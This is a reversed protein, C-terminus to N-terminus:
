TAQSRQAAARLLLGYLTSVSPKAMDTLQRIKQALASDIAQNTLSELMEKDSLAREPMRMRFLIRSLRTGEATIPQAKAMILGHPSRILASTTGPVLQGFRSDDRVDPDYSIDTRMETLKKGVVDFDNGARISKWANTALSALSRNDKELAAKAVRAKAQASEIESSPIPPLQDALRQRLVQQTLNALATRKLNNRFYTARPGLAALISNFCVPMRETFSDAFSKQFSLFQDSSLSIKLRKSEQILVERTIVGDLVKKRCSRPGAALVTEEHPTGSLVALRELIAIDQELDAKSYSFDGLCLVPASDPMLDYPLDSATQHGCGLILSPVVVALLFRKM